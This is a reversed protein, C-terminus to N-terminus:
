KNQILMRFLDKNKQVKMRIGINTVFIGFAKCQIKYVLPNPHYYPNTWIDKDSMKFYRMIAASFATSRSEGSDCCVYLAKVEQELSDIFAKITKAKDANFASPATQNTIDDFELILKNKIRSCKEADVPYSSCMIVGANDLNIHGAILYMEKLSCIQMKFRKYERKGINGYTRMTPNGNKDYQTIEVNGNFEASISYGDDASPVVRYVAVDNMNDKRLNFGWKM